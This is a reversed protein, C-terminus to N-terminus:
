ISKEKKYHALVLNVMRNYDNIGNNQKNSKLYLNNTANSIKQLVGQNTQLYKEYYILDQKVDDSLKSLIKNSQEKNEKELLNITQYFALFYGSYKFSSNKSNICALYSIFHAEDERMFGSQHALEHTMTAPILYLPIDTNINSEFTFPFFIGGVGLKSFLKSSLLPKPKSYTIQSFVPYEKSLNNMAKISENAYNSFDKKEFAQQTSNLKDTLVSLLDELESINYVDSNEDSYNSYYSFPYRYYNLGCTFTFIFYIIFGISILNRAFKIITLRINTGKKFNKFLYIIIAVTVMFIVIEFLSFNFISPLFGIILKIKPYLFLSFLSETLEIHKSAYNSLAFSFIGLLLPVILKKRFFLVKYDKQEM